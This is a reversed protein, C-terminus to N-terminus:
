PRDLLHIRAPDVYLYTGSVECCTHDIGASDKRGELHTHYSISKAWRTPWASTTSSRKSRPSTGKKPRTCSTCSTNFKAWWVMSCTEGTHAQPTIHFSDPPYALDGECIALTGGPHLWHGHYLEWGGLMADLCAATAPLGTSTWSVSGDTATPRIRRPRPLNELHSELNRHAVVADVRPHVHKYAALVDEPTGGPAFNALMLAPRRLTIRARSLARALSDTATAKEVRQRYWKAWAALLENADRNGARAAAVLGHALLMFSYGEEGAGAPAPLLGDATRCAKLAAIM